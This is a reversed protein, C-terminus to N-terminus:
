AIGTEEEVIALGVAIGDGQQLFDGDLSADRDSDHTIGARERARDQAIGVALHVDVQYKVRHGVHISRLRQGLVAADIGAHQRPQQGLKWDLGQRLHEFRQRVSLQRHKPVREGFPQPSQYYRLGRVSHSELSAAGAISRLKQPAPEM